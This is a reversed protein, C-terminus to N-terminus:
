GCGEPAAVPEELAAGAAEAEELGEFGEGLLLDVAAGERGDMQLEVETLQARVSQAALYGEPGYVVLAAGSASRTNGPDGVGYGRDALADTVDGALGSRTTGNLVRVTVEAPPLPVADPDPCAVEVAGEGFTKPEIVGPEAVPERLEDLAYAGIGVLAIALISFVVLQTIRVRRTRRVRLGRRRVDDASRGYPHARPSSPM